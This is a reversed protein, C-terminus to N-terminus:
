ALADLAAVDEASLAIRAAALSAKVSEIRSAGPIPLIHPGKALLWAIAIQYPSAGYAAAVRLVTPEARLRVHGRHGGVTSHPLYALGRARCREVLGSAFDGQELVNCRNQVSVVPAVALARDLERGGVNSVGIHRIKGEERLRALAGVSDEIPVQPDVAHLQYLDICDTGLDRLSRECSQRLWEPRGDVVWQGGPRRLGGKTAVVVRERAGLEDLVAGVLRENHGLDDEGLCYVNATDVFDGGGEVFARIVAQAQAADPRGDISLAMGGLGVPFVEIGTGGVARKMESRGGGTDNAPM